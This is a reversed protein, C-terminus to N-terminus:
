FGKRIIIVVGVVAVLAGVGIMIPGIINGAKTTSTRNPDSPDYFVTIDEGVQYVGSMNSLVGTYEKGDVTFTFEVDYRIGDDEDYPLDTVKTVKATAELYNETHQSVTVIGFVVIVVGIIVVSLRRLINAIRNM